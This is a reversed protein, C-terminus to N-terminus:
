PTPPKNSEKVMELAKKLADVKASIEAALKLRQEPSISYSNMVQKALKSYAAIAEKAKILHDSAGVVEGTEAFHEVAGALGGPVEAPADTRDFAAELAKFEATKSALIQAGRTVQAVAGEEEQISELTTQVLEPKTIVKIGAASAITRLGALILGSEGATVALPAGVGLVGATVCTTRLRTRMADGWGPDYASKYAAAAIALSAQLGNADVLMLPNEGVYAFQNLDNPDVGDDSNMFRHWAPSYFRGRMYILGTPEAYIHGTYGTLPLYGSTSATLIAGYPGFAQLGEVQGTDDMAPNGTNNTGATIVRPTGLHDSHLEHVFGNADIEAIALDGLYIVDRNWTPSPNVTYESLLHGTGTYAYVRNQTADLSDTRTVRLGSAAYQYSELSGTAGNTTSIMRGLEDWAMSLDAQADITPAIMAVEGYNTYTADTLGNNVALRPLRNRSQLDNPAVSSDFTFNNLPDGVSSVNNNFADHKLTNSVGLSGSNAQILRSNADYSLTDWDGAKTLRDAFDYGYTQTVAPSQYPTLTWQAMQLGTPDHKWQEIATSKFLMLSRNGWGDYDIEQVLVKGNSLSVQTPRDFNDYTYSVTNASPYTIMALRGGADYAYLTCTISGNAPPTGGPYVTLKVQKHSSSGKSDTAIYNFNFFGPIAVVGSLLRTGSDFSLGNVLNSVSYTIADNDPDTALPLVCNVTTGAKFEPVIVAGIVPPQDVKVTFTATTTGSINTASLTYTSTAPPTVALSLLGLSVPTQNISASTAGVVTYYLSTSQGPNVSAPSAYFASIIPALPVNVQITYSAAPNLNQGGGQQPYTLTVTYSGAVSYQHTCTSATAVLSQGDGFKWTPTRSDFSTDYKFTTAQGIGIQANNTPALIPNTSGGSGNQAGQAQLGLGTGLLLALGMGLTCLWQAIKRHANRETSTAGTPIRM